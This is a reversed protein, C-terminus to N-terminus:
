QRPGGSIVTCDLVRCPELSIRMRLQIRRRPSALLQGDATERFSRDEFALVADIPVDVALLDGDITLEGFAGFDPRMAEGGDLFPAVVERLRMALTPATYDDFDDDQGAMLLALGYSFRDVVDRIADLRLERLEDAAHDRPSHV